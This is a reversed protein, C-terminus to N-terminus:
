RIKLLPVRESNDAEVLQTMLAIFLPRDAAPLNEITRDHARLVLPKMKNVLNRGKRTLKVLRVRRDHDAQRRTLLERQELRPLVEAVSTRELGIHHALSNQDLEGHEDLTLLLSYQVPTINFAETEEM